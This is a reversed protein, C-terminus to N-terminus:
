KQSVISTTLTHTDMACTQKVTTLLASNAINSQSLLVLVAVALIMREEVKEKRKREDQRRMMAVVIPTSASKPLNAGQSMSTANILM